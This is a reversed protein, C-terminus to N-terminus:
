LSNRDKQELRHSINCFRQSKSSSSTIHPFIKQLDLQTREVGECKWVKVSGCSKVGLRAEM